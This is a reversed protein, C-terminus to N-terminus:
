DIKRLRTFLENSWTQYKDLLENFDKNEWALLDAIISELSLIDHLRYKAIVSARGSETYSGWVLISGSVLQPRGGVTVIYQKANQAIDLFLRFAEKRHHELQMPSELTLYRYNEYELECKMEGVYVANDSKSQFAFDLTLGRLHSAPKITPRGLNRYPARNDQCWCRVIEENFIGFLRSLFKDRPGNMSQFLNQFKVPM